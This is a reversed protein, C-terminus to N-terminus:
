SRRSRSTRALAVLPLAVALVSAWASVAVASSSASGEAAARGIGLAYSLLAALLVLLVQLLGLREGGDGRLLRAAAVTGNVACVVWLSGAVLVWWVPWLLYNLDWWPDTGAPGQDVDVILYAAAAGVVAV